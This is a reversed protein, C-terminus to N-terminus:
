ILIRYSIGWIYHFIQVYSLDPRYNIILYKLCESVSPEHGVVIVKNLNIM